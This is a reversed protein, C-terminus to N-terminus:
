LISLGVGARGRLERGCGQAVSVVAGESAGIVPLRGIFGDVTLLDEADREDFAVSLPKRIVDIVQFAKPDVQHGKSLHVDRRWRGRARDISPHVSRFRDRAQFRRLAHRLAAADAHDLRRGFFFDDITTRITALDDLGRRRRPRSRPRTRGPRRQTRRALFRVFVVFLELRQFPRQAFGKSRNVRPLGLLPPSGRRTRLLLVFHLFFM